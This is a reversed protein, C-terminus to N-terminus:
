QANLGANIKTFVSDNRDYFRLHIDSKKLKEFSFDIEDFLLTFVFPEFNIFNMNHELTMLKNSSIENINGTWIETKLNNNNQTVENNYACITIESLIKGNGKQKFFLGTNCKLGTSIAKESCYTNTFALQEAESNIGIEGKTNLNGNLTYVEIHANLKEFESYNIPSGDDLKTIMFHGENNKSTNRLDLLTNGGEYMSNEKIVFYISDNSIELSLIRLEISNDIQEDAVIFFSSFSYVNTKLDPLVPQITEVEKKCGFLFILVLLSFLLKSTKM